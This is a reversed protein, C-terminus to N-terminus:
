EISVVLLPDPITLFEPLGMMAGRVAEKLTLGGIGAAAAEEVWPDDSAIYFEDIHHVEDRKSRSM